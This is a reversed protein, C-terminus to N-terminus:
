RSISEGRKEGQAREGHPTSLLGEKKANACVCMYVRVNETYTFGGCVGRVGCVSIGLVRWLDPWALYSFYKTSQMQFM